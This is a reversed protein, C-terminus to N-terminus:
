KRKSLSEIYKLLFSHNVPKPLFFDVGDDILDRIDTVGVYASMMIVGVHDFQGSKKMKVVLERGTMNPMNYDTLMVKIDGNAELIKVAEEGSNCCIAVNGEGMEVIKSMVKCADPEDDVILVKRM